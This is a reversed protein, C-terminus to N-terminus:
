GEPSKSGTLLKTGTYAMVAYSSTFTYSWENKLSPALYLLTTLKAGCSM